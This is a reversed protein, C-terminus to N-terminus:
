SPKGVQLPVGYVQRFIAAAREAAWVELEHDRDGELVLCARSGNLEVKIDRIKQEKSNDLAIALRLLPTMLSIARKLEPEL